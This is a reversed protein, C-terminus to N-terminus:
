KGESTTGDDADLDLDFEVPEPPLDEIPSFDEEIPELTALVGLLTERPKDDDM